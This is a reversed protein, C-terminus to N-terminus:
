RAPWGKEVVPGGDSPQGLVDVLAARLEAIDKLGRIGLKRGYTLEADCVHGMIQDRDRGGGRPGRKLEFPAKAAVDDLVQWCAAVLAASRGAAKADLPRREYAAAIAPAGFETTANGELREVVEFHDAEAVTFPVAAKASVQAYRGAFSALAALADDETRGSSCWGPWELASAFVRRNGSEICVPCTVDSNSWSSEPGM